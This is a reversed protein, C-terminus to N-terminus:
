EEVDKQNQEEQSAQLFKELAKRSIRTAKGLRTGQLKGQSIWQYVAARTIKFRTAIEEPTFYEDDIEM